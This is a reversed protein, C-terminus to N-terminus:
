AARLPPPLRSPPDPTAGLLLRAEEADLERGGDVWRSSPLPVLRPPSRLPLLPAGGGGTTDNSTLGSPNMLASLVPSLHSGWTAAKGAGDSHKGPASTALFVLAVGLL